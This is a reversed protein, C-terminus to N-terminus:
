ASQTGPPMKSHVTKMCIARPMPPRCPRRAFRNNTRSHHRHLHSDPIPPGTYRDEAQRARRRLMGLQQGSGCGVLLSPSGQARRAQADALRNRCRLELRKEVPENRRRHCAVVDRRSWCRPHGGAGQNRAKALSRASRRAAFVALSQIAPIASRTPDNRRFRSAPAGRRCCARPTGAATRIRGAPRGSGVYHGSIRVKRRAAFQTPKPPTSSRSSIRRRRYAIRILLQAM